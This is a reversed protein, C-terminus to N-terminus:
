KSGNKPWTEVSDTGAAGSDMSRGIRYAQIIGILWAIILVATALNISQAENGASQRSVYESIAAIDPAIEGRQIRDSIVLAREVAKSVLVYLALLAAGALVAGGKFRKLYFHGSGPFVLASLMVAKIAKSM